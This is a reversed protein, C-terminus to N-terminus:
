VTAFSVHWKKVLFVTTDGACSGVDFHRSRVDGDNSSAKVVLAWLHASHFLLRSSLRRLKLSLYDSVPICVFGIEGFSLASQLFLPHCWRAHVLVAGRSRPKKVICVRRNHVHKHAIGIRCWLSGVQM